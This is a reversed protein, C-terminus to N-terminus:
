RRRSKPHTAYSARPLPGVANAAVVDYFAGLAVDIRRMSGSSPRYEVIRNDVEGKRPGDSERGLLYAASGDPSWRAYTYDNPVRTARVVTLRHSRLDAIGLAVPAKSLAQRSLPQGSLM